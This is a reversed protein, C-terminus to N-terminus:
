HECQCGLALEVECFHDHEEKLHALLAKPSVGAVSHAFVNGLAVYLVTKAYAISMNTDHSVMIIGIKDSNIRKLIEYIEVQGKTDISALPEDLAIMKAEGCLARAIYIRQRQGGSLETIDRNALHSCAVQDLANLALKKDNPSYRNLMRGNLRGMLVVDLASIPFTRSLPINQPVYSIFHECKPHNIYGSDPKLLGLILKLLTSKGAGNPGLIAIFDDCDLTLDVGNFIPTAGYSFSLDKLEIM